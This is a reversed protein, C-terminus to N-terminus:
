FDSNNNGLSYTQTPHRTHTRNFGKFDTPSNFRLKFDSSHLCRM